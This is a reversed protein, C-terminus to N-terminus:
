IMDKTSRFYTKLCNVVEKSKTSKVAFLKIFKTFADIIEFIHIKGSTNKELPGYHDIHILRNIAKLFVTYFPSAKELSIALNQEFANEELVLINHCRSLADVHTM